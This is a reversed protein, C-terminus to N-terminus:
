LTNECLHSLLEELDEVNQLDDQHIDEELLEEEVIPKDDSAIILM